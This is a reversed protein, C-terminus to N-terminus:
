KRILLGLHLAEQKFQEHLEARDVYECIVKRMIWHASRDQLDAISQVRNELDDDLKVTTAM